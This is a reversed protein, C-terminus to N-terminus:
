FHSYLRRLLLLRFVVNILNCLPLLGHWDIGRLGNLLRLMLHVHKTPEQLRVLSRKQNLRISSVLVWWLKTNVLLSSSTSTDRMMSMWNPSWGRTGMPTAEQRVNVHGGCRIPFHACYGPRLLDCWLSLGSLSQDLLLLLEDHNIIIIGTTGWLATSRRSPSHKLLFWRFLEIIILQAVEVQLVM